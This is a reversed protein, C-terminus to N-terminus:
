YLPVVGLMKQGGFLAKAAATLAAPSTWYAAIATKVEELFDESPFAGSIVALQKKRWLLEQILKMQGPHIGPNIAIVINWETNSKRALAIGEAEEIQIAFPEQEVHAGHKTLYSTIATEDAPLWKTRPYFITCSDLSNKLAAGKLLTISRKAVEESFKKMQKIEKQVAIKQRPISFHSYKFSLIKSSNRYIANTLSENRAARRLLKAYVNAVEEPRCILFLHNGAALAKECADALNYINSVAGMILDDSIAFGQYSWKKLLFDRVIEPALSAPLKKNKDPYLAHNVMIFPLNQLLEKYPVLDEREIRKWPRPVTPLVLHSDRDTDGLGPFHKGCPLIGSKLHADIVERAYRIVVKPNNSFCRTGLGNDANQLALDLVPTFNVNFEMAQLLRAHCQHIRYALSPKQAAALAMSPPITGIIKHLREVTGGEQDVAMFMPIKSGKQLSSNLRTVQEISEVNRQFLCIGGPQFTQFIEKTYPDDITTGNIGIWFCQGLATKLDESMRCDYWVPLPPAQGRGERAVV